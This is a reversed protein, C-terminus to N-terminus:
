QTTVGDDTTPRDLPRDLTSVDRAGVIPGLHDMRLTGGSSADLRPIADDDADAANTAPLARPAADADADVTM